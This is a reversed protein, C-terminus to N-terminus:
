DRKRRRIVYGGLAAAGMALLAYTSPEPVTTFGAGGAAGTGSTFQDAPLPGGIDATESFLDIASGASPIVYTADRFFFGPQSLGPSASNTTLGSYVVLLLEQGTSVGGTLNFSIGGNAYGPGGSNNNGFFGVRTAGTPLFSNTLNSFVTNLSGLSAWTSGNTLALVNM